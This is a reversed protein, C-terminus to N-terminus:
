RRNSKNQIKTKSTKLHPELIKVAEKMIEGAMILEMLFYEGNEYKKGVKDLGPSLGEQICQYPDIGEEIATIFFM